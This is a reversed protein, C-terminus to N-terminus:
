SGHTQEGDPTPGRALRGELWRVLADAAGLILQAVALDRQTRAKGIEGHIYSYFHSDSM